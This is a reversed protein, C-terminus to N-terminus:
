INFDREKSYKINININTDIANPQSTRVALDSRAGNEIIIM